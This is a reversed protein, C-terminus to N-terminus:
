WEGPDSGHGGGEGSMIRGKDGGGRDRFVDNGRDLGHDAVGAPALVFAPDIGLQGFPAALPFAVGGKEDQRLRGLFHRLHDLDAEVGADGDGRLAAIGAQDAALDWEAFDQDRKFAHARDAVDRRDVVGHHQFRTQAQEFRLLDGFLGPTIKRQRQRGFARGGDATDDRGIGAARRHQAVADGAVQDRPQLDHQGVAIDEM